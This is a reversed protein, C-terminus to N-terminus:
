GIRSCRCSTRTTAIVPTVATLPAIEKTPACNDYLSYNVFCTAPVGAKSVVETLKVGEKELIQPLAYITSGKRAIGDLVHLGPVQELQPNTDRDTRGYLSFSDRRSSEGVALVVVLNEPHSIAVPFDTRRPMALVPKVANM